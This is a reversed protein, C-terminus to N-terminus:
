CCGNETYSLERGSKKAFRGRRTKGGDDVRRIGIRTPEGSDPDVLMVNSVDIPAEFEIIGGQARSVGGQQPRQHKKVINIGSVVVKGESPIIRLVTGRAGKDNGAIVVVDDDVKLRM